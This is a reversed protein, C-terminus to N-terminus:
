LGCFALDPFGIIHSLIDRGLDDTGISTFQRSLPNKVNIANPDYPNYCTFIAITFLFIVVIGSLLALKNQKFRELIFQGILGV